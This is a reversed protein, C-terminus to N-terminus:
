AASHASAPPCDVCDSSRGDRPQPVLSAITAPAPTGRGAWWSRRTRRARRAQRARQAQSDRDAQALMERVHEAAVAAQIAPHM